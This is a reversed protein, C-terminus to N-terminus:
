SALSRGMARKPLLEDVRARVQALTQEIGLADTDLGILQGDAVLRQFGNYVGEMHAMDIPREREAARSRIRQVAVDVPSHVLVALDPKPLMGVTQRFWSELRQGRALANAVTTYIYRDCIVVRGAALEPLIDARAHYLRDGLTVLYLARHLAPDDGGREAFGRFVDTARASPTPQFTTFVEHGDARLAAALGNVLTTKGAGDTGEVVVFLGQEGHPRMSDLFQIGARGSDPAEPPRHVTVSSKSVEIEILATVAVDLQALADRGGNGAKEVVVAIESVEAGIQRVASVLSVLTGGTSLTDDVLCVRDGPEVGNVYLEGQTYESVFGVCYGPVAYPYTRAIALPIGTELSLAAGIVAGKEEEVLIKDCGALDLASRLRDVVHRLLEPRLAPIHDCLENVTTLYRGSDLVGAAAYADELM